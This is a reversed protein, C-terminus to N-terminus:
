EGRGARDIFLTGHTVVKEGVRLGSVAEVMGNGSRGTHIPRLGLTGDANLVWVRASDGEYVVASEPVGPASSESGTVISFSAFMEPKLEADPNEVEARVALRRTNPDLGPAVYTIRAKFLRDPLAFIRVEVSQGRRVLPADTERVNAVLWVTSLDGIAYVPNAAAAQVYQGLGVQRDTITGAIPALVSAAPEMREHAELRSIETDSKGQIRLRNRALALAAEASRVNNQATVLESESQQWDQLSGGKADFLEHKRRENSQALTVQARATNLANVASVLDSQGQVFETADVVLLPQGPKVRDGLKGLVQTVRGSYPSFVPTTRDGNLAIKGDTIREARFTTLAVPAIKLSAMQASSPRFSGPEASMTETEGPAAPARAWWRKSVWGLSLSTVVVLGVVVVIVWQRRRSWQM